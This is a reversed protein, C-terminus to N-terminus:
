AIYPMTNPDRKRESGSSNRRCAAEENTIEAVEQLSLRVPQGQLLSNLDRVLDALHSDTMLSGALRWSVTGERRFSILVRVM